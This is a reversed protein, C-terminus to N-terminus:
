SIDVLQNKIAYIIISATNHVDMKEQIKIRYGEVTRYSLNIDRAIEKNTLGKCILKIVEIEKDTFVVKQHQKAPNFRSRSILRTIKTATQRCYYNQGNYVKTIAEQVEDKSANKVLYGMAGAELMDTIQQEEEYMTLAIVGVGVFNNVIYRTAEIGDMIPMKIDTLVVDPQLEEVMGILERGNQAMGLLQIGKLNSCLLNLGDQYIEHDDAAIIKIVNTM